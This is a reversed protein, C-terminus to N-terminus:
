GGHWKSHLFDFTLTALGQLGRIRFEGHDINPRITLIVPLIVYHTSWRPRLAVQKTTNETYKVTSGNRVNSPLTLM